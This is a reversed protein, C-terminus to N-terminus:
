WLTSREFEDTVVSEISEPRDGEVEVGDEDELLELELLEGVLTGLLWCYWLSLKISLEM